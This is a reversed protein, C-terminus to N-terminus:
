RSRGTFCTTWPFTAPQVHGFCRSQVSPQLLQTPLLLYRIVSHMTTLPIVHGSQYIVPMFYHLQYAQVYHEILIGFIEKKVLEFGFLSIIIYWVAGVVSIRTEIVFTMLRESYPLIKKGAVSSPSSRKSVQCFSMRSVDSKTWFDQLSLVLMQSSDSSVRSFIKM